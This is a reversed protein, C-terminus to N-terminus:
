KQDAIFKLLSDKLRPLQLNITAMIITSLNKGCSLKLFNEMCAPNSDAEKLCINILWKLEYDLALTLLNCYHRELISAISAQKDISKSCWDILREVQYEKALKFLKLIDLMTLSTTNSLKGLYIFELFLEFTKHEQNAIIIPKQNSQTLLDKHMDYFHPAHIQLKMSHVHIETGEVRFVSDTGLKKLRAEWETMAIPAAKREFPTQYGGECLYRNNAGWKAEFEIKVLELHNLSPDFFHYSVAGPASQKSDLTIGFKQKFFIEFLNAGFADLYVPNPLTLTKTSLEGPKVTRKIQQFIESTLYKIQNSVREILHSRISPSLDDVNPIVQQLYGDIREKKNQSLLAQAPRPTEPEYSRPTTILLPSM